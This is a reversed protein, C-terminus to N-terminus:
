SVISVVGFVFSIKTRNQLNAPFKIVDSWSSFQKINTGRRRSGSLRRCHVTAYVPCRIGFDVIDIPRSERYIAGEFSYMYM